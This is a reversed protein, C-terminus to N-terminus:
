MIGAEGEPDLRGELTTCSIKFNAGLVDLGKM